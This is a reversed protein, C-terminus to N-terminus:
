HLWCDPPSPFIYGNQELFALATLHRNKFSFGIKNWKQKPRDIESADPTQVAQGAGRGYHWAPSEAAVNDGRARGGITAHCFKSRRPVWVLM